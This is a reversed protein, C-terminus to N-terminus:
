PISESNYDHVSAQPRLTHASTTYNLLVLAHPLHHFIHYVHPTGYRRALIMSGARPALLEPLHCACSFTPVHSHSAIFSFAANLNNFQM